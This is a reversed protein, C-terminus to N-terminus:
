RRPPLAAHRVRMAGYADTLVDVPDGPAFNEDAEQVVAVVGGRDLQVTIELAKKQTGGEEAAAGVIGGIVAGAVTAVVRGTGGGVSSGAAGGAVSGAMAGVGSHSGEIVAPRVSEVVGRELTMARQAADRPYVSASRRHVCGATVLVGLALVITAIGRQRM